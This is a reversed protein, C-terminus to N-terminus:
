FTVSTITVKSVWINYNIVQVHVPFMWIEFDNFQDDREQKEPKERVIRKSLPKITLREDSL